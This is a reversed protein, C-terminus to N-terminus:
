TISIRYKLYKTHPFSVQDNRDPFEEPIFQISGNVNNPKSYTNGATNNNNEKDPIFETKVPKVLFSVTNKTESDLDASIGAVFSM